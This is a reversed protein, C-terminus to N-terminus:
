RDMGPRYCVEGIGIKNALNEGIFKELDPNREFFGPKPPQPPKVVVPERKIPPTIVHPVIVPEPKKIEEAKIEPEPKKEPKVVDPIIVPTKHRAEWSRQETREEPKPKERQGKRQEELLMDLRKQLTDFRKNVDSRLNSLMVLVLAIIVVLLFIEM